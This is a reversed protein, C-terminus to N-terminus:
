DSTYGPNRLSRTEGNAFVVAYAKVDAPVIEQIVIVSDKAAEPVPRGHPVIEFSKMGGGVYSSRLLRQLKDRSLVDGELQKWEEPYRGSHTEAFSECAVYLEWAKERSQEALNQSQDIKWWSFAPFSVAIVIMMSFYGLGVAMTGLRRGRKNKLKADSYGVHGCVAAIASLILGIGLGLTLFGVLALVAGAVAAKSWQQSERPSIPITDSM